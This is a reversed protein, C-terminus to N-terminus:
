LVWFQFQVRHIGCNQGCHSPNTFILISIQTTLCSYLLPLQYNATEPFPLFYQLSVFHLTPRHLFYLGKPAFNPYFFVVMFGALNNLAYVIFGSTLSFLHTPLRCHLFIQSLFVFCFAENFFDSAFFPFVSYANSKLLGPGSADM